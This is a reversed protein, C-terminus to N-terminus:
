LPDITEPTNHAAFNHPLIRNFQTLYDYANRGSHTIDYGITITGQVGATLGTFVCQFPTSMQENFHATGAGLNGNVWLMPNITLTDVGNKAQNLNVNPAASVKESIIATSIFLWLAFAIINPKKKM